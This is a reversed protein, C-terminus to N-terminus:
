VKVRVIGTLLLQMLGKKQLKLASLEQQLLDIEKDQKGLINSIAQQEDKNPVSINLKM